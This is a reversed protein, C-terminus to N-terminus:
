EAYSEHGLSRIKWFIASKLQSSKRKTSHSHAQSSLCSIDTPPLADNRRLREQSISM